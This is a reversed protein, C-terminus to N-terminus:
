TIFATSSTCICAFQIYDCLQNVVTAMKQKLKDTTNPFPSVGWYVCQVLKFNFDKTIIILIFMLRYVYLLKVIRLHSNHFKVRHTICVNYVGLSSSDSHKRINQCKPFRRFEGCAYTTISM